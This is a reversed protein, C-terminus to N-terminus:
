TPFQQWLKITRADIEVPVGKENTACHRTYGVSIVEGDSARTIIYDFQLTVLKIEGPRTHVYFLDDYFLPTHYSLELKIIPYIFGNDEIEKYPYNANRMLEGRGYEFYKLYNAHYVVGSRDTDVYLTRMQCRHWVKDSNKDRVFPPELEQSIFPKPRM